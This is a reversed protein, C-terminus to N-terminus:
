QNEHKTDQEKTIKHIEMYRHESQATLDSHLYVRISTFHINQQCSQERALSEATGVFEFFINVGVHLLSTCYVFM